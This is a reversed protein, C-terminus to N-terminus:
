AASRTWRHTPEFVARRADWGRYVRQYVAEASIGALEAWEPISRRIGDITLFGTKRRNRVQEKPTAWRCNGPEYNGNNDIRDLQMSPGPLPGMDEAFAKFSDWRSCITIGRGGYRPYDPASKCLCRSRMKQWRKYLPHQKHKM